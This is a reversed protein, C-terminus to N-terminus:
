LMSGWIKIFSRNIEEKLNKIPVKPIFKVRIVFINNAVTNFSQFKYCDFRILHRTSSMVSTYPFITLNVQYLLFFWFKM